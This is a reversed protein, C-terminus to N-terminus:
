SVGVQDIVLGGENSRGVVFRRSRDGVCGGEKKTPIGLESACITDNSLNPIVTLALSSTAPSHSVCASESIAQVGRKSHSSLSQCGGKILQLVSKSMRIADNHDTIKSQDKVVPPPYVFIRRGNGRGAVSRLDILSNSTDVM